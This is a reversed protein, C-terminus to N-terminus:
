TIYARLIPCGHEQGCGGKAIGSGSLKAWHHHFQELIQQTERCNMQWKIGEFGTDYLILSIELPACILFSTIQGAM